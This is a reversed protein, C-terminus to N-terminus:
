FCEIQSGFQKCYRGDSRVFGSGQPNYRNGLDDFCRGNYCKTVTPTQPTAPIPARQTPSSGGLGRLMSEIGEGGDDSEYYRARERQRAVQRAKERALEADRIAAEREMRQNQAKTVADYRKMMAEYAEKSQQRMGEQSNDKEPEWYQNVTKHGSPCPNGQLLLKGDKECKYIEATAYNSITLLVLVLLHKMTGGQNADFGRERQSSGRRHSARFHDIRGILWFREIEAEDPSVFPERM